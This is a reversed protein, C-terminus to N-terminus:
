HQMLENLYNSDKQFVEMETDNMYELVGVADPTYAACGKAFLSWAMIGAGIRVHIDHRGDNDHLHYACIRSGLQKQLHLIDMGAVQAHGVDLVCSLKPIERFINLFEAENFLPANGSCLNEAALRVGEAECIDQFRSLRDIALQRRDDPSLQSGRLDGEGYTHLVYFEGHFRHYLSFPRRLIEFLKAENCPQSIDVFAFPAHISFCFPNGHSLQTLLSDWQDESGFEYFIEVGFGEPLGLLKRIKFKYFSCTSISYRM